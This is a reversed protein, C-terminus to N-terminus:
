LLLASLLCPCVILPMHILPFGSYLKLECSFRKIAKNQGVFLSGNTDLLAHPTDFCKPCINGTFFPMNSTIDDLLGVTHSSEFAVLLTNRSVVLLESPISSGATAIQRVTKRRYNIQCIRRYSTTVYVDGSNVDQTMFRINILSSARVFTSVDGHRTDVTRLAQNDHDTVFMQRKNIADLMVAFVRGFLGDRGSGDSYGARKCKGSFPFTQLTRRVIRRLCYNDRDAVIMYNKSIQTFGHIWSFRSSKGVHELYSSHTPDGAIVKEHAGNTTKISHQDTFIIYGPLWLDAEM